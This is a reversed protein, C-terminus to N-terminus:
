EPILIFPIFGFLREISISNWNRFVHFTNWANQERSRFIQERNFDIDQKRSRQSFDRDHPATELHLDTALTLPHAVLLTPLFDLPFAPDRTTPVHHLHWHLLVATLKNPETSNCFLLITMKSSGVACTSGSVSCVIQFTTRSFSLFEVTIVIAWRKFVM